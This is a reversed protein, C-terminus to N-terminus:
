ATDFWGNLIQVQLYDFTKLYSDVSIPNMLLLTDM